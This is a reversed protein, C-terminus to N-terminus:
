KVERIAGNIWYYNIYDQALRKCQESDEPHERAWDYCYHLGQWLARENPKMDPLEQRNYAALRIQDLQYAINRVVVM